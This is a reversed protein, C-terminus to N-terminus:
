RSLGSRRRQLEEHEAVTQQLQGLKQHGAVHLAGDGGDLSTVAEGALLRPHQSSKILDAPFSLLMWPAQCASGKSTHRPWTPFVTRMMKTLKKPLRTWRGRNMPPPARSAQRAERSMAKGCKKLPGYSYVSWMLWPLLYSVGAAALRWPRPKWHTENMLVFAKLINRHQRSAEMSLRDATQWDSLVRLMLGVLWLQLWCSLGAWCTAYGRSSSPCSRSPIPTTGMWGKPM